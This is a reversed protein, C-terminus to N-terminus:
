RRPVPRHIEPTGHQEQGLVAPHEVEPHGVHETGGSQVPYWFVPLLEKTGEGYTASLMRLPSPRIQVTRYM